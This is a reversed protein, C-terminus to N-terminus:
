RKYKMLKQLFEESIQKKAIKWWLKNTLRECIQEREFGLMYFVSQLIRGQKLVNVKVLDEM